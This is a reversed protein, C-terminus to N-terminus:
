ILYARCDGASAIWARDDRIVAAVITAAHPRNGVSPDHSRSWLIRNATDVATTLLRGPDLGPTDWGAGLMAEVALRAADRGTGFRSVGDAIVWVSPEAPVVDPDDAELSGCWDENVPRMRGVDTLLSGNVQLPMSHGPRRALAPLPSDAHRRPRGRWEPGAEPVARSPLTVFRAGRSSDRPARDARIAEFEAPAALFAGGGRRPEPASLKGSPGM